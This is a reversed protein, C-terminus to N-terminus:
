IWRFLDFDTKGLVQERRMDCVVEWERNIFTYRGDKQKAYIVAASNELITELLQLKHTLVAYHEEFDSRKM